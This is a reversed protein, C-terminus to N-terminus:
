TVQHQLLEQPVEPDIVIPVEVTIRLVAVAVAVGTVMIGEKLVGTEGGTETQVGIEGETEPSTMRGRGDEIEIGEETENVTEIETWSGIDLISGAMTGTGTMGLGEVAEKVITTGARKEKEKEKEPEIRRETVAVIGLKAIAGKGTELIEARTEVLIGTRTRIEKVIQLQPSELPLLEAFLPPIELLRGTLLESDSLSPCPQKLPPRDGLQIMQVM